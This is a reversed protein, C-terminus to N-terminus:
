RMELRAAAAPDLRKLTAAAAKRVDEKVPEM